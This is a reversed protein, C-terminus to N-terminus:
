ERDLARVPLTCAGLRDGQVLPRPFFVSQLHPSSSFSPETGVAAAFPWAGVVAFEFAAAVDFATGFPWAVVVFM